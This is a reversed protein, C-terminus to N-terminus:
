RLASIGIFFSSPKAGGPMQWATLLTTWFNDDDQRGEVAKTNQVEM